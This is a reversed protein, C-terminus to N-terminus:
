PASVTLSSRMGLSEHGPLSCFLIYEGPALEAVLQTSEQRRLDETAAVIAEDATRVTLNHPTPGENSVAFSVASGDVTVEAPTIRFDALTIPTGAPSAPSSSPSAAASTAGSSGPVAATPLLPGRTTCGALVAAVLLVTATSRRTRNNMNM